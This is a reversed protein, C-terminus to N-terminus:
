FHITTLKKVSTIVSVFRCLQYHMAVFYVFRKTDIDSLLPLKLIYSVKVVTM